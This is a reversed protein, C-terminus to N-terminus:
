EHERKEEHAMQCMLMQSVNMRETKIGHGQRCVECIFINGCKSCEDKLESLNNM